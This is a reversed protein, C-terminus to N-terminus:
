RDYLAVRNGESDLILTRTGYSGIQMPPVLIKGGNEEVAKIAQDMRGIVNLYVLAGEQSPKSETSLCGSVNDNEHPLMGFEFGEGKIHAAEKGLVASYFKVARELDTVALDAWCITNINPKNHDYLAIKNGECDLIIARIGHEGMHMPQMLIKGGNAEVAKLAEEMRGIVNLYILAGEASPKAENSLCGGIGLDDKALLAFKVGEEEMCITEKGMVDSYFKAAKELNTVSIDAWCVTHMEYKNEQSM